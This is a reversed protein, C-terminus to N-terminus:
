RIRRYERPGRAPKSPRAAVTETPGRRPRASARRRTNVGPSFEKGPGREILTGDVTVHEDSVLERAQALAFVRDFFAQAIDGKMLRERNKTFTTAHWVPDDTNLGVFWRILMNYHLQEVPMRESHVSYLLQLLLARLLYEPPISTRGNKTYLRSFRPPLDRLVSDILARM